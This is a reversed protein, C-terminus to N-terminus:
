GLMRIFKMSCGFIGCLFNGASIIRKRQGRELAAFGTASSKVEAIEIIWDTKKKMRVLDLQGLERKRLLEPSVLLPIGESHFDRSKIIELSLGSSNGSM